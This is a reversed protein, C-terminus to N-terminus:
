PTEEPLAELGELDVAAGTVAELDLEFLLVGDLSYVRSVWRESSGEVLRHKERENQDSVAAVGYVLDVKLAVDTGASDVIVWKPRSSEGDELGLRRCLDVVPVMCERHDAAGIIFDPSSPVPVTEQLNVIEKVTMIDVGCRIGGVQFSVLKRENDTQDRSGLRHVIDFTM